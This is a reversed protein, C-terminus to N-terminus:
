VIEQAHILTVNFIHVSVIELTLKLFFSPLIGLERRFLDLIEFLYFNDETDFYFFHDQHIVTGVNM